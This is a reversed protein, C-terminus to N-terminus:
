FKINKGRKSEAGTYCIDYDLKRLMKEWQDSKKLTWADVDRGKAGGIVERETLGILELNELTRVCTAECWFFRDQLNQATLIRKDMFMLLLRLMELGLTHAAVHRVFVVDEGMVRGHGRAMAVGKTLSILQSYLRATREPRSVSPDRTYRDRKIGTRAIAVIEAAYMIADAQKKSIEPEKPARDLMEHAAEQLVENL